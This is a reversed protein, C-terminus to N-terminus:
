VFGRVEPFREAFRNFLEPHNKRLWVWRGASRKTEGAWYSVRQDEEPLDWMLDYIRNYTLGHEVIYAWIDRYTLHVVPTCALIDDRKYRYISGRVRKNMARGESEEARLGLFVGDFPYEELLSRIPAYVTSEMTAHDIGPATPGGCRAFTDLMPECPWTIIHHHQSTYILFESSEPFACDADFYVGPVTPHISWVLDSTVLSDKGGSWGVYPAHMQEFAKEVLTRAQAVRRRYEPLCAHMEFFVRRM